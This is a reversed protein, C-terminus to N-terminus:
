INNPTVDKFIYHNWIGVLPFQKTQHSVGAVKKKKKKKKKFYQLHFYGCHYLLCLSHNM